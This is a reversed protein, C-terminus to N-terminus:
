QFVVFRENEYVPTLGAAEVFRAFEEPTTYLKWRDGTAEPAEESNGLLLYKDALVADAEEPTGAIRKEDIGYLFLLLYEQDCDTVAVKDVEPWEIQAYADEIAAERGSYQARYAPSLLLAACLIGCLAAVAGPLYQWIRRCSESSHGTKESVKDKLGRILREMLWVAAFALIVGAFSFVRYYPLSSLMILLLPISLIGVALYVAMFGSYDPREVKRRYGGDQVKRIIQYLTGFMCLVLGAALIAAGGTYYENLLNRLWATFKELFGQRGVSQIYPTALMYEIGTKLATFPEQLIVATHGMGYFASGETKVLLNSGIALWVIGYLGATCVASIMSTLILRVLRKGEEAVFNGLVASQKEKGLYQKRISELLWADKTRYVRDGTKMHCGKQYLTTVKKGALVDQGLTYEYSPQQKEDRFEVVDQASLKKETQYTVERKGVSLVRGVLVGGHNPRQM